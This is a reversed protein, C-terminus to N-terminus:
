EPEILAKALMGELDLPQRVDEARQEPCRMGVFFAVPM